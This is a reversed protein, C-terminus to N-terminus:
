AKFRQLWTLDNLFRTCPCHLRKWSLKRCTAGHDIQKASVVYSTSPRVDFRRRM